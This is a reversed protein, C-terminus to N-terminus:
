DSKPETKTGLVEGFNAMMAELLWGLSSHYRLSAIIFTATQYQKKCYIQVVQGGLLAGLCGLFMGFHRWLALRFRELFLDVKQSRKSGLLSELITGVFTGVTTWFSTWFMVGFIVLFYSIKSGLIAGVIVGYFFCRVTIKPRPTRFLEQDWSLGM